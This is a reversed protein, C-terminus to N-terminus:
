DSYFLLLIDLKVCVFKKEMGVFVSGMFSYNWKGDDLVFFFGRFWFSFFLKCKEGMIIM